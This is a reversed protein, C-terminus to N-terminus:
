FIDRGICHDSYKAIVAVQISFKMGTFIGPKSRLDYQLVTLFLCIAFVDDTAPDDDDLRLTPPTVMCRLM